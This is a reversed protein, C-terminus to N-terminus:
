ARVVDVSDYDSTEAQAFRILMPLDFRYENLRQALEHWFDKASVIRENVRYTLAPNWRGLYEYEKDM